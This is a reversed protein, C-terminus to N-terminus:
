ARCIDNITSEWLAVEITNMEQFSCAHFKDTQNRAEENLILGMTESSVFSVHMFEKSFFRTFANIMIHFMKTTLLILQSDLM